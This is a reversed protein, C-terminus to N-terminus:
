ILLKFKGGFVAVLNTLHGFMPRKDRKSQKWTIKTCLKGTFVKAILAKAIQDKTKLSKLKKFSFVVRYSFYSNCVIKFCLYCYFLVMAVSLSVDTLATNLDEIRNPSDLRLSINLRMTESSYKYNAIISSTAASLSCQLKLLAIAETM